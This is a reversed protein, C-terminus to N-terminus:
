SLRQPVERWVDVFDLFQCVLFFLGAFGGMNDELFQKYLM